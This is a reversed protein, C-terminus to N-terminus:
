WLNVSCEYQNLEYFIDIRQSIFNHAAIIHYRLTSKDGYAKQCEQCKHPTLKRHVVDIHHKLNHKNEFSKQCEQCRNPNLTDNIAKHDQLTSKIQFSKTCEQLQHPEEKVTPKVLISTDQNKTHKEKGLSVPMSSHQIIQHKKFGVSTFFRQPCIKCRLYGDPDRLNPDREPGSM